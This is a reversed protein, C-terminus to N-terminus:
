QFFCSYTGEGYFVNKFHLVYKLFILQLAMNLIQRKNIM